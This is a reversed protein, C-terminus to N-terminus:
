KNKNEYFAISKQLKAEIKAAEKLSMFPLKQSIRRLEEESYVDGGMNSGQSPSSPSGTSAQAKKQYNALLQEKPLGSLESRFNIYEEYLTTFDKKGLVKGELYQKFTKDGDLVSLEVSPYKEKFKILQEGLKNVQEPSSAPKVETDATAPQNAPATQQPKETQPKPEEKAPQTQTQQGANQQAKAEAERRKRAEEANKNKLLEEQTPQDPKGGVTALEEDGELLDKFFTEEPKENVQATAVVPKEQEAMCEERVSLTLSM